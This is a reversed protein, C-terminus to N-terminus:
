KIKFNRRKQSIIFISVFSVLGMVYIIDYGPIDPTQPPPILVTVEICNSLTDGVNNHAVVIFYYIGSTYGTLSFTLVGTEVSLVTLSGNIETIFISGLYVSYNNAGSSITWSLDFTGDTDPVGADSSLIFDGPPPTPIDVIAEICNSLTDGYTNHAVVIFYYTGDTYGSMAFTLDTIGFGLLILSGNIETICKSYRYVSYTLARDSNTWSLDFIGDDDPTGGNSSLVFDGPQIGVIIGISNSLTDGYDNHAVVIFYYIGNVSINLALTLDTIGSELLTLSGNIEIIFKSYQYVSYTLARDSSTWSLDFIGDDDPTGANSLLIFDGPPICVVVEICNSLTDGYDNHAVVIFYFIENNSISLPLSIDTTEDILLTLSSNINTIFKSYQYVSYNITRDSNTWSLDFLGDDDPTGANSSLIFDSPPIGVGVEICNSLTDGYDNHAVVIFYFIENTSLSLPLSLDTTKDLLLTLSGNIETIYKSYQYVSYNNAGDSNEWILDFNGDDDPIGADTSLAFKGPIPGKIFMLCTEGTGEKGYTIVNEDQLLSAYYYNGLEAPILYEFTDSNGPLVDPDVEDYIFNGLDDKAIEFHFGTIDKDVPPKPDGLYLISNDLTINLLVEEGTTDNKILLDIQLAINRQPLKLVDVPDDSHSYFDILGLLSHDNELIKHTDNIEFLIFDNDNNMIKPYVKLSMIMGQPVEGSFQMDIKNNDSYISGRDYDTMSEYTYVSEPFTMSELFVGSSALEQNVEIEYSSHEYFNGDIDLDEIVKLLAGTFTRNIFYPELVGFGQFEPIPDATFTFDFEDNPIDLFFNKTLDYEYFKIPTSSYGSGVTGLKNVDDSFTEYIFLPYFDTDPQSAAKSFTGFFADPEDYGSRNALLINNGLIESDQIDHFPTWLYRSDNIEGLIIQMHKKSVDGLGAFKGGISSTGFCLLEENPQLYKVNVFGGGKSPETLISKELYGTGDAFDVYYNVMNFDTKDTQITMQSSLINKSKMVVFIDTGPTSTYWNDGNVLLNGNDYLEVFPSDWQSADISDYIGGLIGINKFIPSGGNSQYPLNYVKGFAVPVTAGSGNDPAIWNYKAKVNTIYVVTWTISISFSARYRVSLPLNLSRIRAHVFYPDNFSGPYSSQSSSAVVSEGPVLYNYVKQVGDVWIWFEGHDGFLDFPISFSYIFDTRINVIEFYPNGYLIPLKSLDCGKDFQYLGKSLDVTLSLSDTCTYELVVSVSADSEYNTDSSALFKDNIDFYPFPEIFKSGSLDYDPIIYSSEIENQKEDEAISSNSQTNLDIAYFSQFALIGPILLLVTLFIILERNKKRNSKM